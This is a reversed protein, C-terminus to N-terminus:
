KKEEYYASGELEKLYKSATFRSISLQQELISIRTYPQHFLVEVLKKSYIKPTKKRVLQITKELLAKIGAITKMADGVADELM